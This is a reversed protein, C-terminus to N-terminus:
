GQKGTYDYGAWRVQGDEFTFRLGGFAYIREKMEDTIAPDALHATYFKAHHTRRTTFQYWADPRFEGWGDDQEAVARLEPALEDGKTYGRDTTDFNTRSVVFLRDADQNPVDIYFKHPWGYKRDAWDAHMGNGMAAVLDEPHITGCYSCRRFHEGRSADRWTWATAIPSTASLGHVLDTM